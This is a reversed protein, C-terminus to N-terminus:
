KVFLKEDIGQSVHLNGKHQTTLTDNIKVKNQDKEPVYLKLLVM